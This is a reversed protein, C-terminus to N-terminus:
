LYTYLYTTQRHHGEHEKEIQPNFHFYIPIRASPLLTPLRSAKLIQLLQMWINCRGWYSSSSHLTYQSLATVGLNLHNSVLQHSNLMRTSWGKVKVLIFGDTSYTSFLTYSGTHLLNGYTWALSVSPSSSGFESFATSADNVWLNWSSDDQNGPM